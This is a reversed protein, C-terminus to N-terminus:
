IQTNTEIRKKEIALQSGNVEGNNAAASCKRNSARLATLHPVTQWQLNRRCRRQRGEASSELCKKNVSDCGSM